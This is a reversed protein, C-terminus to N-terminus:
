TRDGFSSIRESVLHLQELLKSRSRDIQGEALILKKEFSKIRKHVRWLGACVYVMFGLSIAICSFCIACCAIECDM